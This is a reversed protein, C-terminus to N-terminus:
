IISSGNSHIVIHYSNEWIKRPSATIGQSFIYRITNHFIWSWHKPDADTKHPDPDADLRFVLHQDPNPDPDM